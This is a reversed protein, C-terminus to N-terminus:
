PYNERVSKTTAILTVRTSACVKLRKLFLYNTRKKKRFVRVGRRIKGDKM